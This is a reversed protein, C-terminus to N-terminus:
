RHVRWRASCHWELRSGSPVLRPSHAVVFTTECRTMTPPSRSISPPLCRSSPSRSCDSWSRTRRSGLISTSLPSRDPASVARRKASGAARYRASSSASSYRRSSAPGSLLHSGVAGGDERTAHSRLKSVRVGLWASRHWDPAAHDPHPPDHRDHRVCRSVRHFARRGGRDAVRPKSGLDARDFERDPAAARSPAARVCATRVGGGFDAGGTLAYGNLAVIMAGAVIEPLGISGVVSSM